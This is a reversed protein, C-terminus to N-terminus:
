LDDSRDVNRPQIKKRNKKKRSRKKKKELMKKKARRSRRKKRKRIKHRKKEKKSEIGKIKQVIKDCLRRRALYRNVARSRSDQVKVEIGTPDHKLYVCNATRNVKQGGSGSGRIFKETLDSEKIGIKKM